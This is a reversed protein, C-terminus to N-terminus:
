EMIEMVGNYNIIEMIMEDAKENYAKGLHPICEM